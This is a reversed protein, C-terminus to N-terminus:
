HTILSPSVKKLILKSKEVEGSVLLRYDTVVISNSKIVNLNYFFFKALMKMSFIRFSYPHSSAVVLLLYNSHLLLQFKEM